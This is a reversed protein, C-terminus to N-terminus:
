VTCAYSTLEVSKARVADIGAEAVLALMDQLALMGVIAPTGSLFRRIGQAPEYDPGMLFPEAAGMWGQIPQALEDQLREAVYLFAPSGPGGNLYKYTCGVALDVDWDDLRVPVAGVS